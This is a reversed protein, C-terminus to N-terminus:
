FRKKETMNNVLLRESVSTRPSLTGETDVTEKTTNLQKKSSIDWVENGDICSTRREILVQEMKRKRLKTREICRCSVERNTYEHRAV